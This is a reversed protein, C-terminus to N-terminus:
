YFCKIFYIKLSTIQPYVGLKPCWNLSKIKNLNKVLQIISENEISYCQKIYM